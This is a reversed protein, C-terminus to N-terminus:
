TGALVSLQVTARIVVSLLTKRSTIAVFTVTCSGQGRAPECSNALPPLVSALLWCLLFSLRQECLHVGRAASGCVDARWAASASALLQKWPQMASVVFAMM